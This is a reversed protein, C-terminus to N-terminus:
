PGISCYPVEGVCVGSHSEPQCDVAAPMECTACYTEAAATLAGNIADWSSTSLSLGCRAACRNYENLLRCDSHDSCAQRGYTKLVNARYVEYQVKGNSCPDGTCAKETCGGWQGAVDCSCTNCGDEAVKLEGPTCGLCATKTCASKGDETCWCSNCDVKWTQGPTCSPSAKRCNITTGCMTTEYCSGDPPCIGDIQTDGAACMPLAACTATLKMCWITSCCMSNEYCTAGAICAGPGSIQVEGDGCVPMALCCATAGGVGTAGGISTAGGAGTTGGTGLCAMETCAWTGDTGCSCQNCGDDALKTDGETCRQGDMSGVGVTRDCGPTTALLLGILWSFHFRNM